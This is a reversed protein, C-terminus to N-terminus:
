TEMMRVPLTAWLGCLRNLSTLTSRHYYVYSRHSPEQKSLQELRSRHAQLLTPWLGRLRLSSTLVSLLVSLVNIKWLSQKVVDGVASVETDFALIEVL